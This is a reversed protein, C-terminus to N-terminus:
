PSSFAFDDMVPYKIGRECIEGPRQSRIPFLPIIGCVRKCVCVILVRFVSIIQFTGMNLCRGIGRNWNNWFSLQEPAPACHCLSAHLVILVCVCVCVQVGLLHM